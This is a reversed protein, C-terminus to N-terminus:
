AKTVHQWREGRKIASVTPRSVGHDAAIAQHTGSASYIALAAEETLKAMGHDSGARAYHRGKSMM